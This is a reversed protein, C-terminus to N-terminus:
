DRKKKGAYLVMMVGAAALAIGPWATLPLVEDLLPWAFLAALAPVLFMISSVRGVRGYRMLTLFLYIGLLSNGLVLYACAGLFEAKLPLNFPTFVLAPPLFVITAFAYQIWFNVLRHCRPKKRNEISAGISIGIVAIFGLMSGLLVGADSLGRAILVWIAGALGLALGLWVRAGPMHRAFLTSAIQVLVPQSAAFLGMIGASAGLEMGLYVCGFHVIQVLFAIQLIAILEKRDPWVPRLAILFPTLLLLAGGFRIVLLTLPNTYALGLKAVAYGASWVCIFLWPAVPLWIPAPPM